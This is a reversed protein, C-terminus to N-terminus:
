LRLGAQSKDGCGGNSTARGAHVRLCMNISKSQQFHGPKQPTQVIPPSLNKCTTKGNIKLTTPTSLLMDGCVGWFCTYTRRQVYTYTEQSVYVKSM